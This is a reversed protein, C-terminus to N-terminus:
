RPNLNVVKDLVDAPDAKPQGEVNPGKNKEGAKALSHLTKLHDQPLSPYKKILDPLSSDRATSYLQDKELSGWEGVQPSLGAQSLMKDRFETTPLKWVPSPASTPSAAHAIASVLLTLFLYKLTMMKM